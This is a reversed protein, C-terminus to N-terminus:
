TASARVPGMRVVGAGPHPGGLRRETGSALRRVLASAVPNGEQTVRECTAAFTRPDAIACLVEMARQMLRKDSAASDALHCVYARLSSALNPEIRSVERALRIAQGVPLGDPDCLELICNDDMDAEVIAKDASQLWFEM